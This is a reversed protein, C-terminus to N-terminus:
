NWFPDGLNFSGSDTVGGVVGGVIAGTLPDMELAAAGLAGIGAGSLARDAFADGCGQLGALLAFCAFLKAITSM